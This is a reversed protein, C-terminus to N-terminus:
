PWWWRKKQPSASAKPADVGLEAFFRGATLPPAALPLGRELDYSEAGKRAAVLLTDMDKGMGQAYASAVREAFEDRGGIALMRTLGDLFIGEHDALLTIATGLAEPHNPRITLSWKLCIAARNVDGMKKLVVGLDSLIGAALPPFTTEGDSQLLGIAERYYAAASELEGRRRHCRGIWHRAQPWDPRERALTELINQAEDPREENLARIADSYRGSWDHRLGAVFAALNIADTGAGKILTICDADRGAEELWSIDKPEIEIGWSEPDRDPIDLSYVLRGDDNRGVEIQVYMGAIFRRVDSLDNVAFVFVPHKRGDKNGTGYSGAFMMRSFMSRAGTKRMGYGLGDHLKSKRIPM